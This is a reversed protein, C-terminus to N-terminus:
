GRDLGGETAKAEVLEALGEDNLALAHAVLEEELGSSWRHTDM